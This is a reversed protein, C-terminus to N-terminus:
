AKKKSLKQYYFYVTIVAAVFAVFYFFVAIKAGGDLGNVFDQGSRAANYPNSLADNIISNIATNSKGSIFDSLMGLAKLFNAGLIHALYVSLVMGLSAVNINSFVNKGESHAVYLFYALFVTAVITLFFTLGFYLNLNSLKNSIQYLTAFNVQFNMANFVVLLTLIAIVGSLGLFIKEFLSNKNYSAVKEAAENLKAKNEESFVKDAVAEVKEKATGAVDEAHEKVNEVVEKFDGDAEPLKSETTQVVEKAEEATEKVAEVVTEKVETEKVVADQEVNKNENQDM